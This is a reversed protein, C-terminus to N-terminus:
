SRIIDKSQMPKLRLQSQGLYDQTTAFAHVCGRVVLRHSRQSLHGDAQLVPAQYVLLDIMARQGAADHQNKSHPSQHWQVLVRQLYCSALNNAGIHEIIARLLRLRALAQLRQYNGSDSRWTPSAQAKCAINNLVFDRTLFASFAVVCATASSQPPASNITRFASKSSFSSIHHPQFMAQSPWQFTGLPHQAPANDSGSSNSFAYQLPELMVRCYGQLWRDDLIACRQLAGM